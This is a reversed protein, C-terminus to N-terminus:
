ILPIQKDARKLELVETIEYDSKLGSTTKYQTQKVRVKLWDNAYISVESKLLKILFKQDTIEASWESEGESFRWKHGDKFWMHSVNVYTERETELLQEDPEDQPKYYKLETKTIKTSQQKEDIFEIIEIGDREAPKLVSYISERIKRSQYMEWEIKTVVVTQGDKEIEVNADDKDTVKDARGGKLWKVLKVLGMASGSILGLLMALNGVATIHTGNLIMEAQSALSQIAQVDVQFSGPQTAKIKLKISAKDGNAIRNAEQILDSLGMLAPALDNVDITHDVLAQGDYKLGFSQTQAM